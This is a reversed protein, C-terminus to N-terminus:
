AAGGPATTDVQRISAGHRPLDGCADAAEEPTMFVPGRFPYGVAAMARHGTDTNARFTFGPTLPSGDRTITIDPTM